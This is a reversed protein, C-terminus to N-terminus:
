ESRRMDVEPLQVVASTEAIINGLGITGIFILKAENLDALGLQYLDNLTVSISSSSGTSENKNTGTVSVLIVCTPKRAGNSAKTKFCAIPRLGLKGEVSGGYHASVIIRRGAPDLKASLGNVEGDAFGTSSIALLCIIAYLARM